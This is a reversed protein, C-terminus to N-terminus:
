ERKYENCPLVRYNLKIKIYLSTGFSWFVKLFVGKEFSTISKFFHM